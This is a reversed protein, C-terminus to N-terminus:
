PLVAGGQGGRAGGAGGPKRGRSVGPGPAGCSRPGGFGVQAGQWGLRRLDAETRITDLDIEYSSAIKFTCTANKKDLVIQSALDQEDAAGLETPQRFTMTKLPTKRPM